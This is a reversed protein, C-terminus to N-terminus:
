VSKIWDRVLAQLAPTGARLDAADAYLLQARDQGLWRLRGTPDELQPGPSSRLKAGRHLILGLGLKARLHTTAFWERTRFSPANWKIGEGISADAALMAQRLAEIAPKHAHELAAMFADVAAREHQAAPM